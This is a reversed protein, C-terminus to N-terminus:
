ADALMIDDDSTGGAGQVPTNDSKFTVTDTSLSFGPKATNYAYGTIKVIVNCGDYLQHVTLKIPLPVDKTYLIDGDPDNIEDQKRVIAKLTIKGGKTGVVKIMHTEDIQDALNEKIEKFPIIVASRKSPKAIEKLILDVDDPELANRGKDGYSKFSEICSPLFEDTAWRVVKDYQTDNLLLNFHPQADAVDKKPFKGIKSFEFAEEATAKLWMLRGSVTVSGGDKLAQM